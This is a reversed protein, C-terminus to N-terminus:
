DEERYDKISTSSAIRYNLAEDDVKDNIKKGADIFACEITAFMRSNEEIHKDIKADLKKYKEELKRDIIQDMSPNIVKEFMKELAEDIQKNTM